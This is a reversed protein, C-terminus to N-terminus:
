KVGLIEKFKDSLVSKTEDAWKYGVIVKQNKNRGKKEFFYDQYCHRGQENIEIFTIIHRLNEAKEQLDKALQNINKAEVFGRTKIKALIWATKTEKQKLM